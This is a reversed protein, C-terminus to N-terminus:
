KKETPIDLLSINGNVKELFTPLNKCLLLIRLNIGFRKVDEQFQTLIKWTEVSFPIVNEDEAVRTYPLRVVWLSTDEGLWSNTDGSCLFGGDKLNPFSKYDVGNITTFLIKRIDFDMGSNRWGCRILISPKWNKANLNSIYENLKYKLKTLDSDNFHENNFEALFISNKTDLKIEIKIGEREFFDVKKAM